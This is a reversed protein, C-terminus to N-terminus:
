FDTKIVNDAKKFRIESIITAGLMLIAGIWAIYSLEEHLVLFSLLISLVPEVYSLIAISQTSMFPMPGLYFIYAIGTHVIGLILIYVIMMPDWVISAFDTTILAYPLMVSSAAALVILTKDFPDVERLFKNFVVIGVYCIASGLGILLGTLSITGEGGIVGSVMVMGFLAVLACIVKLPTLREKFLIPSIFIMMVPALYNFLTGLSVNMVNYSTFLCIWNGGLSFGALILWLINKKIVQWNPKRRLILFIFVLMCLIGILGRSLVILGAPLSLFRSVIGATGYIAMAIVYQLTPLKKM